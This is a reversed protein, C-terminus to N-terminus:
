IEIELNESALYIKMNSSKLHKQYGISSNLISFMKKDDYKPEHHFLVLKPINWENAFDVALSYSSHVWDYKEIAEDLTYQSDMVILDTNQFYDSNEKNRLFDKETLETDTSFIISKNGETIKYSYSDGPHKMKRWEVVAQGIKISKDNLEKFEKEARMVDMNVPFYPYKMQEQLYKSFEKIPSYFSIKCGPKFIPEFFPIGQIHDWHFHTFFLHFHKIKEKTKIIKRGLERIGSGADFIILKNDSLRIEICATNGGITKILYPPLEALFKARAESDTIDKSEVRQVVAAIKSQLQLATLPTPISGRVGWFIIKM